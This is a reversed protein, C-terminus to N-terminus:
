KILINFIFASATGIGAAWAYIYNVKVMLNDVKKELASIQKELRDFREDIQAFFKDKYFNEDM